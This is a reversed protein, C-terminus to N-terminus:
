SLPAVNGLPHRITQGQQLVSHCCERPPQMGMQSATPLHNDGAKSALHNLPAKGAQATRGSFVMGTHQKKSGVVRIAETSDKHSGELSATNPKIYSFNPWHQICPRARPNADCHWPASTSPSLVLAPAPSCWARPADQQGHLFTVESPAPQLDAALPNAPQLSKGEGQFPALAVCPFQGLAQWCSAMVPVKGPAQPGQMVKIQSTNVLPHCKAAPQSSVVPGPM